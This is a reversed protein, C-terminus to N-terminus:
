KSKLQFKNGRAFVDVKTKLILDLIFWFPLGFYGCNRWSSTNSDQALRGKLMSNFPYLPLTANRKSSSDMLTIFWHPVQVQQNWFLHLDRKKHVFTQTFSTSSSNNSCQHYIRFEVWQAFIDITIVPVQSKWLCLKCISPWVAQKQIWAFREQPVPALPFACYYLALYQM